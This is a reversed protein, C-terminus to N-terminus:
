PLVPSAAAQPQRGGPFIPANRRPRPLSRRRQGDSAPDAYEIAADKAYLQLLAEANNESLAKDWDHYIREMQQKNLMPGGRRKQISTPLLPSTPFIFPRYSTPMRVRATGLPVSNTRKRMEPVEGGPKVDRRKAAPADNARSKQHYLRYKLYRHQERWLQGDALTEVRVVDPLTEDLKAAAKALVDRLGRQHSTATLGKLEPVVKTIEVLSEDLYPHANAYLKIAQAKTESSSASDGTSPQAVVLMPLAVLFSFFALLM